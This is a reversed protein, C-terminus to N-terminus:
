IVDELAPRVSGHRQLQALAIVTGHHMTKFMRRLTDATCSLAQSAEFINFSVFLQITAM